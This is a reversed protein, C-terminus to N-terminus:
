RQLYELWFFVLINPFQITIMARARVYYDAVVDNFNLQDSLIDFAKERLKGVYCNTIKAIKGPTKVKLEPWIDGLPKHLKM